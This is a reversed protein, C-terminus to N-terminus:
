RRAVRQRAELFTAEIQRRLEPQGFEESAAYLEYALELLPEVVAAAEVRAFTLRQRVGSHIVVSTTAGRRGPVFALLGFGDDLTACVGPCRRDIAKRMSRKLTLPQVGPARAHDSKVRATAALNRRGQPREIFVRFVRCQPAWSRAFDYFRRFYHDAEAYSELGKEGCVALVRTRRRQERDLLGHVHARYSDLGTCDAWSIGAFLSSLERASRDVDDSVGRLMKQVLLRALPFPVHRYVEAVGGRLRSYAHSSARLELVKRTLDRELCRVLEGLDTFSGLWGRRGGGLSEQVRAPQLRGTRCYALVHRAKGNVITHRIEERTGNGIRSDFFAVVIDAPAVLERNILEQFDRELTAGLQEYGVAKLMTRHEERGRHWNDIASIVRERAAGLDLASAVFVQYADWM